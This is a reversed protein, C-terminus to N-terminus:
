LRRSGRSAAALASAITPEGGRRASPPVQWSPASSSSVVGNSRVYLFFIPVYLEPGRAQITAENSGASLAFVAIVAAM